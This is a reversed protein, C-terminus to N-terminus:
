QAQAYSAACQQCKPLSEHDQRPVFYVGCMARATKGDVTRAAVSRRHVYHSESGADSTALQGDSCLKRLEEVRQELAGLEAMNSYMEGAFEWDQEPPHVMALLSMVFSQALQSGKWGTQERVTIVVDDHTYDPEKIREVLVEIEALNVPRGKEVAPSPAPIMFRVSGGSAVSALHEVVIRQNDLRWADLAAHSRELKWLVVDEETPLLNDTGSADELRRIREYFDDHDQHGGKALGVTVVWCVDEGDVWVGARWQGTKVEYLVNSDVSTIRGIPTDEAPNEGFCEAAKQLIPHDLSSLPLAAKVDDREVARQPYRNGWGDRLDERIVRLTPRARRTM